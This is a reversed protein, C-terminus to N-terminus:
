GITFERGVLDNLRVGVTVVNRRAHAATFPLGSEAHFAAITESEIFTLEHNPKREPPSFTGVGTFYRDGELGRGPFARVARPSEMAATPSAAILIQVVTSM